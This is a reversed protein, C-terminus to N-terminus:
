TDNRDSDWRHTEVFQIRRLKCAPVLLGSALSRALANGCGEPPCCNHRSVREMQDM